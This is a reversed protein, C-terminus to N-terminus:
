EYGLCKPVDREDRYVGKKSDQMGAKTPHPRVQFVRKPLHLQHYHPSIPFDLLHQLCWLQRCRSLRQIPWRSHPCSHLPEEQPFYLTCRTCCLWHNPAKHDPHTCEVACHMTRDGQYLGYWANAHLMSWQSSLTHQNCSAIHTYHSILISPRPVQCPAAHM